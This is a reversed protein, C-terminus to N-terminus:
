IVICAGAAHEAQGCRQKKGFRISRPRCSKDSSGRGWRWQGHRAVGTRGGLVQWIKKWSCQTHGGEVRRTRVLVHTSSVILEVGNM